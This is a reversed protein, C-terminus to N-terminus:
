QPHCSAFIYQGPYLHLQQSLLHAERTDLWLLLVLLFSAKATSNAPFPFSPCKTLFIKAAGQEKGNLHM